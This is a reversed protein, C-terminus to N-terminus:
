DKNDQLAKPRTGKLAARLEHNIIELVTVRSYRKNESSLIFWPAYDTGTRLFMENAADTYEDWHERAEADSASVKWPKERKRDEFRKLQEDKTIDLWFKVIIVGQRELMWEFTRIESYSDRIEQKTAFNMVREVLLREAWSRDFVRVQGKAPMRENKFFRWLYPHAREEETPPGIPVGQFIKMDFDLAQVIRETAGSKGAGDRGQFVVLLSKGSKALRRVLRNLEAEQAALAKEYAKRSEIAPSHDVAGLYDPVRQRSWPETPNDFHRHVKIVGNVLETTDPLGGQRKSKPM